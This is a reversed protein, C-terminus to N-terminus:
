RGSPTGLAWKYGELENNLVTAYYWSALRKAAGESSAFELDSSLSAKGFMVRWGWENSTSESPECVYLTGFAAQKVWAGSFHNWKWEGDSM